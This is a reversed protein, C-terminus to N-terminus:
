AGALEADLEALRAKLEDTPTAALEAEQKSALIGELRQREAVLLARKGAVAQEALKIDIIRELVAVKLDGTTASKRQSKTVYSEATSGRVEVVHANHIVDLNFGGNGELPLDFLQEINLLGRASEFRLKARIGQEIVNKIESM